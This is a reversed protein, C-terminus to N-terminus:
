SEGVLKKFRPHERVSDFTPSKRLIHVSTISPTSVVLELQDIAAEYDGLLIMTEALDLRRRGARFADEAPPLLQIARDAHRLAENKMGLGAYAIGLSGHYRADNPNEAIKSLLHDRAAGFRARAKTKDGMALFVFADTLEVPRYIAHGDQPGANKTVAFYEDYNRLLYEVWGRPEGFKEVGFIDTMERAERRANLLDGEAAYGFVKFLRPNAIEPRLSLARDFYPRAKAYQRLFVYTEGVSQLVTHENPNLESAQLLNQLAEDFRGQRRQVYAVAALAESSNPRHELVPELYRLANKLDRRAHYYYWGMAWNADPSDPDIELARQVARLSAEIRQESVDHNFWVMDACVESLRVYAMLFNSDLTTAKEFQELAVRVDTVSTSNDKLRMGKLYADYAEMNDTPAADLARQDEPDLLAVDLEQVVAKAINSQMKFVATMPEDYVEAWVNTGDAVRVLQPTVRVRNVDGEGRQWRVTGDLIYDVELERGIDRVSKKSNKYEEVSTRAIVGLDRVSALRATIEETVGDAFYDDEATGENEFPLVAIKILDDNTKTAPSRSTPPGPPNFAPPGEEGSKRSGLRPAVIATIAILGVVIVSVIIVSSRSKSPPAFPPMPQSPTHGGSGAYPASPTSPSSPHGSYQPPSGYAAPPHGHSPTQPAWPTGPAYPTQSPAPAYPYAPGSSAGPHWAVHGSERLAVKIDATMDAASQYRETPDKRLAKVVIAEVAHPVATKFRALPEPSLNCIAYAVTNRNDGQFPRNGAIMEYLVVGFSFLDSRHDIPRGQTQEPSMYSVTGMTSGADTVQTAGYFTALGFDLIKAQGRDAVLINSSKIDRHVVGAEHAVSLADAIQRALELSQELTLTNAAIVDSLPHGSVYEMVIFDQGSANEIAYIAVINPHSLRSAAQAERLLRTRAEPSQQLAPPVFKIAVERDLKTDHARFVEGMGGQGLKEGIRYHLIQRDSM